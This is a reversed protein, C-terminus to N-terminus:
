LERSKHGKRCSGMILLCSSFYLNSKNELCVHDRPKQGTVFYLSLKWERKAIFINEQAWPFINLRSWLLRKTQWWNQQALYCCSLLIPGILTFFSCLLIYLKQWNLHSGWTVFHWRLFKVKDDRVNHNIIILVGCTIKDTM